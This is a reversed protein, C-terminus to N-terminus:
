RSCASQQKPLRATNIPTDAMRNTWIAWSSSGNQIDPILDNITGAAAINEHAGSDFADPFKRPRPPRTPRPSRRTPTIDTIALQRRTPARQAIATPCFCRWCYSAVLAMAFTGGIIVLTKAPLQALYLGLAHMFKAFKSRKKKGSSSRPQDYLDLEDGGERM